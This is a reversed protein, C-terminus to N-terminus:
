YAKLEKTFDMVLEGLLEVWAKEDEMVVMKNEEIKKKEKKLFDDAVGQKELITIIREVSDILRFPGYAQTEGVLDRASATMFCFLELWTRKLLEERAENKM